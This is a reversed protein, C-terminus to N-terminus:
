KYVSLFARIRDLKKNGIGSIKALEDLEKFPGHQERYVVIREALKGGIGPLTELVQQSADNISIPKGFLPALKFHPRPVVSIEQASVTVTSFDPLPVARQDPALDANYGAVSLLDGATAITPLRYAGSVITPHDVNQLWVYSFRKASLDHPLANHQLPDHWRFFGLFGLLVASFLLVLTRYDHVQNNPSINKASM